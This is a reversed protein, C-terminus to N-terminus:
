LDGSKFSIIEFIIRAESQAINNVRDGDNEGIGTKNRVIRNM